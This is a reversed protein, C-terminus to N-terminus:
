HKPLENTEPHKDYFKKVVDEFGKCSTMEDKYTAGFQIAKVIIEKYRM